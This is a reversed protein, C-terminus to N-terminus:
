HFQYLSFRCVDELLARGGDCGVGCFFSTNDGDGEGKGLGEGGGALPTEKQQYWAMSVCFKVFLRYIYIMERLGGYWAVAVTMARGPTGGPGRGWPAPRTRLVHLPQM